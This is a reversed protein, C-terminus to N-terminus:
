MSRMYILYRLVNYQRCRDIGIQGIADLKDADSIIDRLVEVTHNVHHPYGNIVEKTYSINNIIWDVTFWGYFLKRQLFKTLTEKKQELNNKYKYDVTDHLLSAYMVVYFNLSEIIKKSCINEFIVVANKFVNVHHNIDHSEDYDATLEACLRIIEELDNRCYNIPFERQELFKELDEVITKIQPEFNNNM